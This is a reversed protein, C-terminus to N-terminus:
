PVTEQSPAISRSLKYTGEDRDAGYYLARAGGLTYTSGLPGSPDVQIRRVIVIIPRSAKFEHLLVARTQPHCAVLPIDDIYPRRQEIYSTMMRVAMALQEEVTLM